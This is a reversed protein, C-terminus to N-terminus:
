RTNQHFNTQDIGISVRIFFVGLLSYKLMSPVKTKSNVLTIRNYLYHQKSSPAVNLSQIPFREVRNFRLELVFFREDNQM